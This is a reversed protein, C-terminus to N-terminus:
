SYFNKWKNGPPRSIEFLAQGKSGDLDPAYKLASTYGLYFVGLDRLFTCTLLDKRITSKEKGSPARRGLWPHLGQHHQAGLRPVNQPSDLKGHVDPASWKHLWLKWGTVSNIARLNMLNQAWLGNNKKKRKEDKGQLLLQEIITRWNKYKIHKKGWM